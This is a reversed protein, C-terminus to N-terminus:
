WGPGSSIYVESSMGNFPSLILFSVKRLSRNLHWVKQTQSSAPTPIASTMSVPLPPLPSIEEASEESEPRGRRLPGSAKAIDVDAAPFPSNVQQGDEVDSLVIQDLVLQSVCSDDEHLHETSVHLNDTFVHLILVLSMCIILVTM